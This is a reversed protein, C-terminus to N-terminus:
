ICRYKGLSRSNKYNVQKVIKLLFEVIEYHNECVALHLATRGDYDCQSMDVVQNFLIKLYELDGEKAALCLESFENQTKSHYIYETPNIRDKM